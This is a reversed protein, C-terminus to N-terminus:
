GARKATVELLQPKVCNCSAVQAPGPTGAPPLEILATLSLQADSSRWRKDKADLLASYDSGDSMSFTVTSDTGRVKETRLLPCAVLSTGNDLKLVPLQPGTVEHEFAYTLLGKLKPGKAKEGLEKVAGDTMPGPAFRDDEPEDPTTFSMYDAFRDCVARDADATASLAAAGAADRGVAGVATKRLQVSLGTFKVVNETDLPVPAATAVWTEVAAKWEGGPAEQVFYDVATAQGSERGSAKSFVVFSRPYSPQDREAPIAFTPETLASVSGVTDKQAATLAATARWGTLLPGTAVKALGDASKWQAPTRREWEFQNFVKEAEAQTIVLPPPPAVSPKAAATATASPGGSGGSGSGGACGAAGAAVLVVGAGVAAGRIWGM